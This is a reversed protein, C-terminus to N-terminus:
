TMKSVSGLRVGIDHTLTEKTPLKQTMLECAPGDGIELALEIAVNNFM